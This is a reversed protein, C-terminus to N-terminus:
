SHIESSGKFNKIYRGNSYDYFQKIQENAERQHWADTFELEEVQTKIQSLLRTFTELQTSSSLLINAKVQEKFAFYVLLGSFLGIFPTVFGNFADGTSGQEGITLGTTYQYIKVCIFISAACLLLILITNLIKKKM